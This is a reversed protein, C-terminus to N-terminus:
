FLKLAAITNPGLLWLTSLQQNKKGPKLQLLIYIGTQHLLNEISRKKGNLEM